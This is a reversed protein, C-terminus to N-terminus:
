PRQLFGTVQSLRASYQERLAALQQRYARSDRAVLELSAELERARGEAEELEPLFAAVQKQKIVVLEWIVSSTTRQSALTPPTERNRADGLTAERYKSKPPFSAEKMDQPQPQAKTPSPGYNRKKEPPPFPSPALFPDEQARGTVSSPAPPASGAGAGGSSGSEWHVQSSTPRPDKKTPTGDFASTLTFFSDGEGDSTKKDLSSEERGGDGFINGTPIALGMLSAVRCVGNLVCFFTGRMPM